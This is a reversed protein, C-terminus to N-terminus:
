SFLAALLQSLAAGLITSLVTLWIALKTAKRNEQAVIVRITEKTADTIADRKPRTSREWGHGWPRPDDGWADDDIGGAEEAMAESAPAEEFPLARSSWSWWTLALGAGAVAMGAVALVTQLDM